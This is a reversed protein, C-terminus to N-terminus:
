YKADKTTCCFLSLCLPSTKGDSFCWSSLSLWSNHYIIHASVSAYSPLTVLIHCRCAFIMVSPFFFVFLHLFVVVALYVHPFRDYSCILMCYSSTEVDRKRESNFCSKCLVLSLCRIGVPFACLDTCMLWCRLYLWVNEHPCLFLCQCCSDCTNLVQSFLGDVSSYFVNSM